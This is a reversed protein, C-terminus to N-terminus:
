TGGWHGLSNGTLEQPAKPGNLTWINMCMSRLRLSYHVFILAIQSSCSQLKGPVSKMFIVPCNQSNSLIPAVFNYPSKCLYVWLGWVYACVGVWM